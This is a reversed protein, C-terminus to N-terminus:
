AGRLELELRRDVLGFDDVLLHPGRVLFVLRDILFQLRRVFFQLGGLLLDLRDVFLKMRDIRLHTRLIFQQGRQVAVQDVQEVACFDRRNKEIVLEQDLAERGSDGVNERQPLAVDAARDCFDDSQETVRVELAIDAGHDALERHEFLL